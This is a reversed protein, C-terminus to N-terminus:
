LRDPFMFFFLLTRHNLFHETYSFPTTKEINSCYTNFVWVFTSRGVKLTNKERMTRYIRNTPGDQEPHQPVFSLKDCDFATIGPDESDPFM